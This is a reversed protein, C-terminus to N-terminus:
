TGHLFGGRGSQPDSLTMRDEVARFVSIAQHAELAAQRTWLVGSLSIVPSPVPSDAPLVESLAFTRLSGKSTSTASFKMYGIVSAKSDVCGIAIYFEDIDAKIELCMETSLPFRRGPLLVMATPKIESTM